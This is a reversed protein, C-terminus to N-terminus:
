AVDGQSRGGEDGTVDVVGVVDVDVDAAAEDVLGLVTGLGGGVCGM